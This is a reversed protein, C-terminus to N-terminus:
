DLEEEAEHELVITVLLSSDLVATLGHAQHGLLYLLNGAELTATREDTRVQVRGEICEIVVERALAHRPREKGALLVMRLVEIRHTKFLTITEAFALQADLPRIDVVEAPRAHPIAM